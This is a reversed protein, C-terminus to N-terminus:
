AGRGAMQATPLKPPTVEAGARAAVRSRGPDDAPTMARLRGALDQAIVRAILGPKSAV